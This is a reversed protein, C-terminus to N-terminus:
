QYVRVYDVRMQTPFITEDIGKKGGFDGGIAVNLLLHFPQDFPWAGSGTNEKAFTYTKVGDLYYEIKDASWEIAYVHYKRGHGNLRMVNTRQTQYMGNYKETHITQHLTDKQYGVTEAIDIEGSKPWGGYRNETPLMWIAPWTGLGNPLMARVEVRGYTWDGKQKTTIRASTYKAGEFSEKRAEIVLEGKEVRANETRNWTYFQPENNGWGCILPCGTGRDYSWRSSDPLGARDFEDSWALKTYRYQAIGPSSVAVFLLIMWLSHMRCLLSKM